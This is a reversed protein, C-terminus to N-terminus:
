LHLISACVTTRSLVPDGDRVVGAVRGPFFTPIRGSFPM